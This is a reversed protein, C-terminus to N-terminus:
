RSRTNMRIRALSKLMLIGDRLPRLTGGPRGYWVVGVEDIRGGASAILALLEVDFAFGTESVDVKMKEFVDRRVFKCGCQSDRVRVGTMRRVAIGFLLSLLRRPLTRGAVDAGTVDRSAIIADASTDASLRVLRVIEEASVSGDADCFGLWAEGAARDWGARVAGGKGRNAHLFLPPRLAPYDRILSACLTGLAASEDPGSGDDVVLVGVPMGADRLVRLLTQLFAPLRRSERFAPIVLLVDDPMTRESVGAPAVPERGSYARSM